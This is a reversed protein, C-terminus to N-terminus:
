RILLSRLTVHTAWTIVSCGLVSVAMWALRRGRWGASVRLFIMALYFAWTFLSFAIEPELIWRPGKEVSAWVVGSVTAITIFVFGINISQSILRDLTGLPPLRLWSREVDKRKLQREQLLYFVSALAGIMLAAYGILVTVIHVHLYADRVETDWGPFSFETAGILTMFFVLPFLCISFVEVRYYAYAALFFVAILFACCSSTEFFNNLPFHGTEAGLEVLAVLHLVTGAAFAILAPIFLRTSKRFLFMLVYVLGLSYLVAATRLWLISMSLPARGKTYTAKFVPNSAVDSLALRLPTLLAAM